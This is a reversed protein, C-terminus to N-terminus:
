TRQAPCNLALLGLLGLTLLLWAAPEPVYILDVDGLGGGGALSGVVTLDGLVLSEDLGTQAVNGFSISGFSSGFTAKFINNDADNDFSGGLNSAPARTFIGAASDINISTLQTGAPADVWVEGTSANYGVSTQGDGQTGGSRLAAYPGTLYTGAQLAAIIDRTDFVGDGLPPNGPAGGPAGNWDGEGWTAVLGSLYKNAVQVQVLDLQDFDLDQDADGAKLGATPDCQGDGNLDCQTLNVFLADDFWVTYPENGTSFNFVAFQVVDTDEPAPPTTVTLKVWQNDPIDDAEFNPRHKEQCSDSTCGIPVFKIEIFSGFSQLPDSDQDADYVWVEGYFEDGPTFDEFAVLEPSIVGPYGWGNETEPPVAAKISSSGGRVLQTERSITCNECTGATGVGFVTWDSPTTDNTWNEFGPDVLLNQGWATGAALALM